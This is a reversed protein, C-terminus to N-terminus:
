PVYPSLTVRFSPFAFAHLLRSSVSSPLFQVLRMGNRDSVKRNTGKM